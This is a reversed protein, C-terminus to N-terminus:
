MNGFLENQLEKLLLSCVKEGIRGDASSLDKKIIEDRNEKSEDVGNKINSIFKEIGSWQDTQELLQLSILMESDDIIRDTVNPKKLLLIPKRTLLYQPIISSWDSLLADSSNFAMQYSKNTDLIMNESNIVTDKLENWYGEYQSLYLKFISDTMPHPRWILAIDKKNKFFDVILKGYEFITSTSSTVDYHSNWLFVKKNKLKSDWNSTLSLPFNKTDFLYDWKPLGTVIVNEGRKPSYERHMDKIEYSQALIRWAYKAIPLGCHAKISDSNILLGTYYPIYVLKTYKSINEPWFQPLTVSEYPNSIFAMDPLDKAIDYQEYPIFDIGMPTLYDEYIVDTEVKGNSQVSRFIPTLVVKVECDERKMFAQYVSNMSDWKQGLEAFFVVHYKILINEKYSNPLEKLNILYESLIKSYKSEEYLCSLIMSVQKNCNKIEDVIIPNMISEKNEYLVNEVRNLIMNSDLLLQEIIEKNGSRTIYEAAEILTELMEKIYKFLSFRM